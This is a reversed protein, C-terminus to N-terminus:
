DRPTHMCLRQLTPPVLFVYQIAHCPQTARAMLKHMPHCTILLQRPLPKRHLPDHFPVISDSPSVPNPSNSMLRLLYTAHHAITTELHNPEHYLTCFPAINSSQQFVYRINSLRPKEDAPTSILMGNTKQDMLFRLWTSGSGVLALQQRKETREKM